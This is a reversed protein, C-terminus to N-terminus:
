TIKSQCWLDPTTGGAQLRNHVYLKWGSRKSRRANLPSPYDLLFDLRGLWNWGEPFVFATIRGEAKTRLSFRRWDPM